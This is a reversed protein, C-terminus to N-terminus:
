TEFIYWLENQPDCLAIIIICHNELEVLEWLLLLEQPISIYLVCPTSGLRTWKEKRVAWMDNLPMMVDVLNKWPKM